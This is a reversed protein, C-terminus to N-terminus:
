LQWVQIATFTVDVAGGLTDEGFVGIVGGSATNDTVKTLYQQNVYLDITSGRAIVALLNSQGTTTKIAQSTGGALIKFNTNGSTDVTGGVLVYAGNTSIGYLYVGRALANTRFALGTIDGQSITTSVQYAFNGFNTATALCISETTQGSGAATADAHLANGSFTCTNSGTPQWGNPNSSNLPDTLAPAGSTAQTYLQVPDNTTITPATRHTLEYYAFVGGGGVLLALVILLVVLVPSFGRRKPPTPLTPPQPTVAFPPPLTFQSAPMTGQYYQPSAYGQQPPYQQANPGFQQGPYVPAQPGSGFPQGPYTTPQQYFGQQGPYVPAQPGSGSPQDPSSTAQPIPQPTDAFTPMDPNFPAASQGNAPAALTLPAPQDNSNYEYPSFENNSSAVPKGCQACFMAGAVLEANCFRCRMSIFEKMILILTFLAAGEPSSAQLM